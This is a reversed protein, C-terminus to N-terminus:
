ITATYFCYLAGIQIIDWIYLIIRGTFLNSDGLNETFIYPIIDGWTKRYNVAAIINIKHKVQRDMSFETFLCVVFTKNIWM